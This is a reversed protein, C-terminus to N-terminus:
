SHLLSPGDAGNPVSATTENTIDLIVLTPSVWLKKLETRSQVFDLQEKQISLFEKMIIRRLSKMGLFNDTYIVANKLLHM